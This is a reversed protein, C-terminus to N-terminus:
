VARYLGVTINVFNVSINHNSLNQYLLNEGVFHKSPSFCKDINSYTSCYLKMVAPGGVAFLDDYVTVHSSRQLNVKQPNIEAINFQGGFKNDFRTRVVLDYDKNILKNAQEISYFMSCTSSPNVGCRLNEASFDFNPSFVMPEEVIFDVPKYLNILDEEFDHYEGVLGRSGDHSCDFKEGPKGKWTHFYIDCDFKDLITEKLSLFGKQYERPQGSICVAIKM